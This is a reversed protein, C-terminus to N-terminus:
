TIGAISCQSYHSIVWHTWWSPDIRHGMEYYNYYTYWCRYRTILIWPVPKMSWILMVFVFQCKKYVINTLTGYSVNQLRMLVHTEGIITFSQRIQCKIAYLTLTINELTLYGSGDLLPTQRSLSCSTYWHYLKWEHDPPDSSRDRM